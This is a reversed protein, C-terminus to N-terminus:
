GGQAVVKQEAKKWVYAAIVSIGIIWACQIGCIVEFSQANNGLLIAIPDFYMYRYPLLKSINMMWEPYFWLPVVTGSFTKILASTIWRIHWATQLWFSTLGLLWTLQYNLIIALGVSVLFKLSSVITINVDFSGYFLLMVMALILANVLEHVIYAFDQVLYFKKFKVPRIFDVSVTGRYINDGVTDGLKSSMLASIITSCIAYLITEDLTVGAVAEKGTYLAKWVVVKSLFICFTTVLSFIVNFRYTFQVKLNKLFYMLYM